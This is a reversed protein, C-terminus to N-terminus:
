VLCDFRFQMPACGLQRVWATARNCRLFEFLAPVPSRRVKDIRGTLSGMMCAAIVVGATRQAGATPRQVRGERQTALTPAPLPRSQRCQPGLSVGSHQVPRSCARLGARGGRGGKCAESTCRLLATGAARRCRLLTEITFGARCERLTQASAPATSGRSLHNNPPSSPPCSYQAQPAESQLNARLRPAPCAPLPRHPRDRAPAPVTSARRPHSVRPSAARGRGQLAMALTAPGM